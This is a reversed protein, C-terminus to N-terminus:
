EWRHRQHLSGKLYYRLSGRMASNITMDVIETIVGRGGVIVSDKKGIRFHSHSITYICTAMKISGVVKAIM